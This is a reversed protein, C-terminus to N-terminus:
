DFGRVMLVPVPSMRMVQEAGSGLLVRGIGRRGHTGLVVLDAGWEGAADAVSEGLRQGVRDILRTDAKVKATSALAMGSELVKHGNERALQAIEGSYEHNSLLSLEDICYVLRVEAQDAQALKLAYDLAKSATQSGDIPVLIKKFLSM